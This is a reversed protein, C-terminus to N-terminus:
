DLINILKYRSESFHVYYARKLGRFKWIVELSVMLRETMKLSWLSIFLAVVRLGSDLLLNNLAMYKKPSNELKILSNLIGNESLIRLRARIVDFSAKELQPGPNSDRGSVWHLKKLFPDGM